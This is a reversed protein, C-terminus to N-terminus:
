ATSRRADRRRPWARAKWTRARRSCGGPSPMPCRTATSGSTLVHAAIRDADLRPLTPDAIAAAPARAHVVSPLGDGEGEAEVLAYAEPFRARLRAVTHPTHNPPLLCAHGRLLAAGLGVAFRYRDISLNLMAGSAPLREALAAADALYQRRSIAVGGRRAIASDPSGAGLLTEVTM